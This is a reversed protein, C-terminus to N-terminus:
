IGILLHENIEATTMADLKKELTITKFYDRFPVNVEKKSAPFLISPHESHDYVFIYLFLLTEEMSQSLTLLPLMHPSGLLLVELLAMIRISDYPSIGSM